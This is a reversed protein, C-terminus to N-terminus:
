NNQDYRKLLEFDYKQLIKNIERMRERINEIDKEKLVLFCSLINHSKTDPKELNIPPTIMEPIESVIKPIIDEEIKSFKDSGNYILEHHFFQSFGDFKLNINEIEDTNMFLLIEIPNMNLVKRLGLYSTTLRPNLEIFSFSNDMKRILDVGFYGRIKMRNFKQLYDQLKEQILSHNVAPAQGGIYNLRGEKEELKIYQENICLLINKSFDQNEREIFPSVISLSLDSGNVFEQLMYQRNLDLNERVNNFIQNVKSTSNIYFISEAGVGDVPKLILPTKFEKFKKLIFSKILSIKRLPITWTKPVPVGIKKFFKITKVKSTGIKIGNINTSLIKKGLKEAKLSLNLLINSFEPAIIFASDCKKLANSFKIIFNENKNVIEIKSADLYKSFKYIRHDLLTEVEINLRYFDKIISRLMGFGESFLSSPIEQNIFGGGSIFEFIFIRNVKM